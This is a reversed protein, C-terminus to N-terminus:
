TRVLGAGASRCPPHHHPEMGLRCRSQDIAKAKAPFIPISSRSISSTSEPMACALSRFSPRLTDLHLWLLNRSDSYFPHGPVDRPSSSSMGEPGYSSRHRRHDFQDPMGHYTARIDNAGPPPRWRRSLADPPWSRRMCAGLLAMFPPSRDFWLLPM